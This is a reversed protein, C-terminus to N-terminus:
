EQDQLLRRLRDDGVVYGARFAGSGVSVGVHCRSSWTRWRSADTEFNSASRVLQEWAEQKLEAAVLPTPKLVIGGRALELLGLGLGKSQDWTDGCRSGVCRLGDWQDLSFGLNGLKEPGTYIVARESPMWHKASRMQPLCSIRPASRRRWLSSERRSYTDAPDLWKWAEPHLWRGAESRCGDPRANGRCGGSARHGVCCGTQDRAVEWPMAFTTRNEM